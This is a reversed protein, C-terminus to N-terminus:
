MRGRVLALLYGILAFVSVFELRGMWMQLIYTVKLGTELGPGVLGVSLGAAAGASTSEFMAEEISYGYFLGMGAGALYLLLYLILMIVATRVLDDSLRQRREGAHYHQVVLASEPLVIRRIDRLVAKSVLVLRLAKVGGTTSGAMGGLAMAIVVGAPALAGWDTVLLRGPVTSLGTGTHASLLQFFGRRFTAEWTDYTGATVLGIAVVASLGLLTGALWRSEVHQVLERPRRYLLHYHLAFSLSGAVMLVSAVAEVAASHYFGLSASTPAFGGTDFASMFLMVAHGIADGIPMGAVQLAIWLAATGAVAYVLTVRWVLQATRGVNPLIRENHTESTYLGVLGRAGAFMSLAVVVLAQGGLLQMLHRWLNVSDAMHDLDNMVALGAATFGSLADFYADLFGGYHGSLLLPLAGVYAASLWSLAVVAMAHSWELERPSTLRWEALQGVSVALGASAVFGLAENVEGRFAGLAAPLLMAVGVGTVMRGTYLAILAVDHRDPRLLM